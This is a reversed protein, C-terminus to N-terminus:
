APACGLALDRYPLDVTPCDALALETETQAVITAAADADNSIIETEVFVGVGTVLDISVTLAPTRTHRYTTRHKEIRVLRRMGISELLREAQQAQGPMLHLNTEPKSIVNDTSHTATNSAPKYTIEVFDGRQRIRLCEVTKIYDIDPRSYYTDVETAPQDPTWGLGALKKKLATGDDPLQRKREVEIQGDM